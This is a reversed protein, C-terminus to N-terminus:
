LILAYETSTVKQSELVLRDDENNQVSSVETTSATIATSITNPNPGPSLYFRENPKPVKSQALDVNATDGPGVIDSAISPSPQDQMPIEIEELNSPQDFYKNPQQNRTEPLQTERGRALNSPEDFYENPQPNKTKPLQNEQGWTPQVLPGFNDHGTSVKFQYVKHPSLQGVYM